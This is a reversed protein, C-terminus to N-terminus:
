TRVVLVPCSCGHVVGMAVSGLAVRALGRRAHTGVVVISAPLDRAFEVISRAPDVQRLIKREAAVGLQALATVAAEASDGDGPWGLTEGDSALPIPPPAVVEVVCVALASSSALEAAAPTIATATGPADVAVVMRSPDPSDSDRAVHPGVLLVPNEAGRVVTEAVSGLVAQGLGGHGHTAMCIISGPHEAAVLLIADAVGRDDIVRTTVEVDALGAAKQELYERRAMADDGRIATVLTLPGGAAVVHAHPLAAESRPSGDLPVIM